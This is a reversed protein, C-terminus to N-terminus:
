RRHHEHRAIEYGVVGGIVLEACGSLLLCVMVLTLMRM